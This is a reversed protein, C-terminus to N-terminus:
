RFWHQFITLWVGLFLNWHFKLRLEFMEIWSFVDLSTTLSIADMKDRGWHTLVYPGLRRCQVIGRCCHRRVHTYKHTAYVKLTTLIPWKELKWRDHRGDLFERLYSNNICVVQLLGPWLSGMSDYVYLSKSLCFILNRNRPNKSQEKIKNNKHIKTPKKKFLKIFWQYNCLNMWLNCQVPRWWMLTRNRLSEGSKAVIKEELVKFVFIFGGHLIECIRQKFM